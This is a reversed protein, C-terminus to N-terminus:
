DASRGTMSTHPKPVAIDYFEIVQHRSAASHFNDGLSEIKTTLGCLHSLILPLLWRLFSPFNSIFNTLIAATTANAAADKLRPAQADLFGAGAGVVIPM